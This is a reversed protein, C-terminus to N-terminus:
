ITLFQKNDVGMKCVIWVIRVNLSFDGMEGLIQGMKGWYTTM